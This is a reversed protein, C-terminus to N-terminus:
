RKYRYEKKLFSKNLLAIKNETKRCDNKERIALIEIDCKDIESHQVPIRKM